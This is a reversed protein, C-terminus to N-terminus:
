LKQLALKINESAIQSAEDLSFWKAEIHEDSVQPEGDFTADVNHFLLVLSIEGDVDHHVRQAHVLGKVDYDRINPLEEHLERDLAQLIDEDDDIRGGPADWFDRPGEGHVLLIKGDNIILAKAGVYFTKMSM